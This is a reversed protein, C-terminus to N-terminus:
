PGKPGSTWGRVQDEFRQFSPRERLKDLVAASVLLERAREIRKETSPMPSGFFRKKLIRRDHMQEPSPEMVDGRLCLLWTELTQVPVVIAHRRDEASWFAPIASQLRCARCRDGHAAHWAVDHDVQHEPRRDADGDNDVALLAYRIGEAAAQRLFPEILKFVSSDGQFAREQAWRSDWRQVPFGLLLELLSRYIEGDYNDYESAIAVTLM